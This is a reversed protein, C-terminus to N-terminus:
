NVNNKRESGSILSRKLKITEYDSTTTLKILKRKVKRLKHGLSKNKKKSELKITSGSNMCMICIM